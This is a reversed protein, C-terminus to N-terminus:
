SRPPAKCGRRPCWEIRLHVWENMCPAGHPAAPPASAPEGPLGKVVLPVCVISTFLLVITDVLGRENEHIHIHPLKHVISEWAAAAAQPVADDRM